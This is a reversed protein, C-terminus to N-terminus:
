CCSGTCFVVCLAYPGTMLWLKPEGPAAALAEVDLAAVNAGRGGAAAWERELKCSKVWLRSSGEAGLQRRADALTRRAAAVNGEQVQLKAAALFLQERDDADGLVGLGRVLLATAGDLDRRDWKAKAAMLWMTPGDDGCQRLGRELVADAAEGGAEFQAAEIWADEDAPDRECAHAYIDRAVQVRGLLAQESAEDEGEEEEDGSLSLSFSLSWLFPDATAYVCLYVPSRPM